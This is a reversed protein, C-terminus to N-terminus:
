CMAILLHCFQQRKDTDHLHGVILHRIDIEFTRSARFLEVPVFRLLTTYSSWMGPANQLWPVKYTDGLCDSLPRSSTISECVAKLVTIHSPSFHEMPIPAVECSACQKQGWARIDVSEDFLLALLGSPPIDSPWSKIPTRPCYKHLLSVIRSDELMHLYTTMLFTIAPPADGLTRESDRTLETGVTFGKEALAQVVFETLFKHFSDYFTKLVSDNFAGFYRTHPQGDSNM